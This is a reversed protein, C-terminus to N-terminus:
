SNNSAGIWPLRRLGASFSKVYDAVITPAITQGLVASVADVGVLYRALPVPNSLALRIVRAVWIPDPFHREALATATNARAYADAYPSNEDAPIRKQGEAWIGTGFGGPEILIV